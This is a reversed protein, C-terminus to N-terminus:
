PKIQMAVSVAPLVSNWSEITSAEVVNTSIKKKGNSVPQFRIEKGNDGMFLKTVETKLEISPM